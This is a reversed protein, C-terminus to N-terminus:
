FGWLKWIQWFVIFNLPTQLLKSAFFQKWFCYHIFCNLCVRTKMHFFKLFFKIEIKRCNRALILLINRKPLPSPVLNYNQSTKINEHNKRTEQSRLDETTQCITLCSTYVMNRALLWAENWKHHFSSKSFDWFIIDMM